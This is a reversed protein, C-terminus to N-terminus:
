LHRLKNNNGTKAKENDDLWRRVFNFAQKREADNDEIEELEWVARQAQAMGMCPPLAREQKKTLRPTGDPVVEKGERPKYTTPREKGDAGVRTDPVALKSTTRLQKQIDGVYRQSCGVRGAIAQQTKEPWTKLATTVAHRVDNRTMRVGNTKNAGLAYWLADERTGKKIKHDISKRELRQAALVRHFGDALYYASGDHFVVVPPFKDGAEMREAYETVTDDNIVHRGQTGADIIIQDITIKV